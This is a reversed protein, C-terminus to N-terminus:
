GSSLAFIIKNQVATYGYRENPTDNIIKADIIQGRKLIDNIDSIYNGNIRKIYISGTDKHDIIEVFVYLKSIGTVRCKFSNGNQLPPIDRNVGIADTLIGLQTVLEATFKSTRSIDNGRNAQQQQAAVVEDIVKIAKFISAKFLNVDQLQAYLSKCLNKMDKSNTRPPKSNNVLFRCLLAIHYRYKRHSTYGNDRLFKDIFFVYMSAICYQELKDDENYMKTKYSKLLEGYYRHTSHPEGLFMAIYSATQYPFSIVRGKNIDSSEYQKSRREYYLRYEKDYSEYMSELNKHFDRLTEFAEDTVPTQRNTTKVISDSVLRDKSSILKVVVFADDTLYKRNEYLVFSTQCGNVVQFNKLVFKNATRRIEEAIITIGNNYISFAQQQLPDIITAQIESNVKNHGQFYRVNDEFLHSMLIGEDNSVLNVFDKCKIAGIFAESVNKIPPLVSSNEMIVEKYTSNHISRYISIIKASDYISIKIDDFQNLKSIDNRKSETLAHFAADPTFKGSYAYVIHCDPNNALSTPNNMIFQYIKQLELAVMGANLKGNNLFNYVAELFLVYEKLEFHESTKAQTFVISVSIDRVKEKKEGGIFISEVEEISNVLVDNVVIAIGDIGVENLGLSVDSPDFHRSTFDRVTIYNVLHELKSSGDGCLDFATTHKELFPKVIDNMKKGRM